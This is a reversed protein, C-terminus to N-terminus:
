YSSTKPVPEPTRRSVPYINVAPCLTSRLASPLILLFSRSTSRSNKLRENKVSREAVRLSSQFRSGCQSSCFVTKMNREKSIEVGCHRCNRVTKLEAIRATARESHFRTACEKSCFKANGMKHEPLRASCQKCDRGLRRELRLQQRSNCRSKVSCEESCFITKANKGEPIPASCRGCKRGKLSERLLRKQRACNFRSHCKKTCFKRRASIETECQACTNPAAIRFLTLQVCM